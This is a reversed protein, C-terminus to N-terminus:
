SPFLESQMWRVLPKVAAPAGGEPVSRRGAASANIKQIVADRQVAVAELIELPVKKESMLSTFHITAHKLKKEGHSTDRTFRIMADHFNDTLDEGVTVNMNSLARSCGWVKCTVKLADDTEKKSFYKAMYSGFGKTSYV